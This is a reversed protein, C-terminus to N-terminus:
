SATAGPPRRGTAEQDQGIKWGLFGFAASWVLALVFVMGPDAAVAAFGSDTVIGAGLRADGIAALLALSASFVVAAVGLVEVVQPAGSTRRAAFGGLLCALAPIALLGFAYWPPAGQGWEFLSYERLFGVPAGQFTVQAGAQVPAGLAIAIVAVLVNPLFAALYIIGALADGAGFDPSPPGSALGVIIWLLAAAGALAAAVLLMVGGAVAGEYWAQSRALGEAGARLLARASEASRLGGWAGFLAGWLGGLLLAFWPDAAITGADSEPRFILAALWCLAALPVGTKAGEVARERRSPADRRSVVASAAASVGWAAAVLAGLPLAFLELDGIRLEVGLSALATLVIGSLIAWPSAGAGISPEDLKAAVVLLLGVSLVALFGVAAAAAADAWGGTEAWRRVALSFDRVLLLQARRAGPHTGAVGESGVEATQAREGGSTLQETADSEAAGMRSGCVPCFLADPHRVEADCSPCRM